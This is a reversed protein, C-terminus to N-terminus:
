ITFALDGHKRLIRYYVYYEMTLKSKQHNKYLVLDGVNFTNEKARKDHYEKQKNRAKRLTKPLQHMVIYM